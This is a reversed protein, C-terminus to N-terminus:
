SANVLEILKQADIPKGSEIGCSSKLGLTGFAENVPFTRVVRQQQKSNGSLVTSSELLWVEAFYGAITEATQGPVAIYQRLTKALEDEKTRIHGTVILTKGTAKLKFIFQRMLNGFIRWEDFTFKDDALKQGKTEAFGFKGLPKGQILLIKAMVLETFSTLSDICFAKVEPHKDAEMLLHAARDYWQERPLEAGDDDEYPSAHFFSPLGSASDKLYRLPGGLNGDCDLLFVSPFQCALTTKGTGPQGLILVSKPQTYNDTSKKIM